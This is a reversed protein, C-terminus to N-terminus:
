AQSRWDPLPWVVTDKIDQREIWIIAEISTSFNLRNDCEYVDSWWLWGRRQVYYRGQNTKMVRYTM